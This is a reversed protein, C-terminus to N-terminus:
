KKRCGLWGTKLMGDQGMALRWDVTLQALVYRGASEELEADKEQELRFAVQEVDQPMLLVKEEANLATCRLGKGLAAKVGDLLISQETMNEVQAELAFVRGTGQGDRKMVEGVKTRVGLAQQASFQYLKRFSRNREETDLIETYSVTVALVHMGEEKLDHRVIWQLSKGPQLDNTTEASEDGGVDKKEVEVDEGKQTTSPTQLEAAISVDKIKSTTDTNAKRENNASLVCSFQEGVYAAGFSPPLTLLPTLSFADQKQSPYAASAKRLNEHGAVEPLADSVTLSPKSLRLVKLSVGHPGTVAPRDNTAPPM